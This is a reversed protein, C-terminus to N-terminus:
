KWEGRARSFLNAQEHFIKGYWVRVRTILIIYMIYLSVFKKPDSLTEIKAFVAVHKSYRILNHHPPQLYSVTDLRSYRTTTTRLHLVFMWENTLENMWDNTLKNKQENKLKNTLKENM